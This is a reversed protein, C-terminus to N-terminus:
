KESIVKNYIRTEDIVGNLFYRFQSDDHKGIILDGSDPMFAVSNVNPRVGALTDNVYYKATQGDYTYAITYWQGKQVYVLNKIM